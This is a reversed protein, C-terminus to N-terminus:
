REVSDLHVDNSAVIAASAAEASCIKEQLSPKSMDDHWLGRKKLTKEADVRIRFDKESLLEKLCDEPTSMNAAVSDRIYWFKDKALTSLMEPSSEPNRAHYLRIEMPELHIESPEVIKFAM